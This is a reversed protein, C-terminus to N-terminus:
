KDYKYIPNPFADIMINHEKIESLILENDIEKVIIVRHINKNHMDYELRAVKGKQNYSIDVIFYNNSSIEFTGKIILPYKSKRGTNTYPKYDVFYNEKNFIIEDNMEYDFLKNYKLRNAEKNYNVINLLDKKFDEFCEKFLIQNGDSDPSFLINNIDCDKTADISNNDIIKKANYNKHNNISNEINKYFLGKLYEIGGIRNAFERVYSSICNNWSWDFLDLFEEMEKNSILFAIHFATMITDDIIVEGRSINKLMDKYASQSFPDGRGDTVYMYGASMIISDVMAYFLKNIIMDLKLDEIIEIELMKIHRFLTDEEVNQGDHIRGSVGIQKFYKVAEWFPNKQNMIEDIQDLTLNNRILFNKLAIKKDYNSNYNRINPKM